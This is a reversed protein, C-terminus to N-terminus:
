QQSGDNVMVNKFPWATPLTPSLEANFLLVLIPCKELFQLKKYM